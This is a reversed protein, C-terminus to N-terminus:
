AFRPRQLLMNGAQIVTHGAGTALQHGISPTTFPFQAFLREHYHVANLWLVPTTKHSALANSAAKKAREFGSKWQEESVKSNHYDWFPQYVHSVDKGDYTTLRHRHSYSAVIRKPCNEFAGM